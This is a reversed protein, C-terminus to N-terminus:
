SIDLFVKAVKEAIWRYPRIPIHEELIHFIKEARAREATSGEMDELVFTTLATSSVGDCALLEVLQTRRFIKVQDPELAYNTYFDEDLTPEGDIILASTVVWKQGPYNDPFVAVVTEYTTAM